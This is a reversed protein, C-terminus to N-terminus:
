VAQATKFEEDTYDTFDVGLKILRNELFKIYAEAAYWQDGDYNGDGEYNEGMAKVIWGPLRDRVTKYAYYAM